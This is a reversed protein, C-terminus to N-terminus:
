TTLAIDRSPISGRVESDQTQYQAVAAGEVYFDFHGERPDFIRRCGIVIIEPDISM